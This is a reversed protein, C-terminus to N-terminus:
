QAFSIFLTFCLCYQVTLRRLPNRDRNRESKSSWLKFIIIDEVRNPALWFQTTKQIISKLSQINAIECIITPWPNGEPDSPYEAPNPLGKPVLSVKAQKSSGKPGKRGASYCTKSGVDRVTDQSDQRIFQRSFERHAIEHDGRPLEIIIVNGDRYEWFKSATARECKKEFKDYTVNEM